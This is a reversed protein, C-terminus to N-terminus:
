IVSGGPSRRDSGGHQSSFFFVKSRYLTGSGGLVRVAFVTAAVCAFLGLGGWRDVALGHHMCWLMGGNGCFLGGDDQPPPILVARGWDNRSCYRGFGVSGVLFPLGLSVDLGGRKNKTSEKM